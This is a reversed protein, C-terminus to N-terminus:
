KRAVILMQKGFIKWLLPIKLYWRILFIARPLRSKTSYPVFQPYV